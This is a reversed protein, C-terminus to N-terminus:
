GRSVGRHRRMLRSVRRSLPEAYAIVEEDGLYRELDKAMEAASAYRDEPVLSMAKLCIAELAKPVWPCLDTPKRFKGRIVSERIKSLSNDPPFPPRGTILRYLTVGLGYIDSSPGVDEAQAHQEPSMYIPTGGTGGSASDGGTDSLPKLSEEGVSKAKGE